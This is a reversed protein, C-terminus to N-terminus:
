RTRLRRRAALAAGAGLLLVALAVGGALGDAGTSALRPTNPGVVGGNGLVIIWYGDTVTRDGGREDYVRARGWGGWGFAPSLMAKEMLVDENHFRFALSLSRDKDFYDALFTILPDYDWVNAIRVTPYILGLSLWAALITRTRLRISLWLIALGMGLLALAGSSRCLATTLLLAPLWVANFPMGGISGIARCRGLWLGLLSCGSMWFGLELGERFFGQPRFAGFRVQVKASMGFVKIAIIPSLVTEVLCIPVYVLGGVVTATALARVDRADDFHLRGVLYPLGWMTLNGNVVFLGDYAGLGNLVSSFFPAAMFGAVPLDLWRPRFRVIRDPNFILTALIIGYGFASTKTYDPVGPLSLGGPPLFAWAGVVGVMVAQRRPLLAFLALCVPIWGILAIPILIPM